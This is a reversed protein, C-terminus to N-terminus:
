SAGKTSADLMQPLRRSLSLLENPLGNRIRAGSKGGDLPAQRM